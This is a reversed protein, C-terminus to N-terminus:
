GENRTSRGGRFAARTQVTVRSQVIGLVEARDAASLAALTEDRLLDDLSTSEIRQQAIREAHSVANVIDVTM